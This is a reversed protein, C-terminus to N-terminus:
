AEADDPRASAAFDFYSTQYKPKLGSIRYIEIPSLANQRLARGFVEAFTFGYKALKVREQPVAGGGGSSTLWDPNGGRAQVAALWKRHADPPVLKLRVFRVVVAEQSLNLHRAVRHIEQLTPEQGLNFRRFTAEVLDAPLLLRAAFENCAKEIRNDAVFPDSIGTKRVLAHGLEHALTFTRRAPTQSRTNIVILRAVSDALCFGSGDDSPFSEHLVFVGTAEVAKRCLAYFAAADKAGVQDSISIGLSARVDGAASILTESTLDSRLQDRYGIDGAVEQLRRAMDISEITQRTKAEHRPSASRFDVITEGVHPAHDMFFVFAPVALEASLQNITQQSPGDDLQRRLDRQTLGIRGAVSEFTLHRAALVARLVQENFTDM